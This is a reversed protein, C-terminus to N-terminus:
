QVFRRRDVTAFANVTMWLSDVNWKDVIPQLRASRHDVNAGMCVAEATLNPILDLNWVMGPEFLEYLGLNVLFAKLSRQQICSESKSRFTAKIGIRSM